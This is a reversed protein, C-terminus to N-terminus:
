PGGVKQLSLTYTGTAGVSSAVAISYTGSSGLTIQGLGVSSGREVGQPDFLRWYGFSIGSVSISVTQGALGVFHFTDVEAANTLNGSRGNGYAISPGCHFSQSVGQLMLGYNGVASTSSAALVTYGGAEPLRGCVADGVNVCVSQGKPGFLQWFNFPVGSIKLLAAAGAPADFRFTDNDGAPSLKCTVLTGCQIQQGDAGCAEEITGDNRRYARASAPVLPGNLTVKANKPFSGPLPSEYTIIVEYRGNKVVDSSATGTCSSTSGSSVVSQAGNRNARGITTRWRDGSKGATTCVSLSGAANTVLDFICADGPQQLVCTKEFVAATAPGGLAGLFALAILSLGRSSIFNM